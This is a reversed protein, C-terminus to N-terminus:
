LFIYGEEGHQTVDLGRQEEEPTVRLGITINLLTLLIISGVIALSAAALISVLQNTLQTYDTFGSEILGMRGGELEGTISRSAFVGTLIAGVAGGVGHVGFADLADDYQFRK